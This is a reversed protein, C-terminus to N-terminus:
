YQAKDTARGWSGWSMSLVMASLPLQPKCAPIPFQKGRGQGTRIQKAAVTRKKSCPLKPTTGRHHQSCTIIKDSTNVARAQGARDKLFGGQRCLVMQLILNSEKAHRDCLPLRQM